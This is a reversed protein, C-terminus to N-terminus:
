LRQCAYYRLLSFSLFVFRNVCFVPSLLNKVGSASGRFNKRDGWIKNHGSFHTKIM